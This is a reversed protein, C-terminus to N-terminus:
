SPEPDRREATDAFYSLDSEWDQIQGNGDIEMIVYDGYGSRRPSLISPVYGAITVIEEDDIDLLTYRGEDCVKYHVSAIVGEPWNKILGTALDIDIVWADGQRMPITPSENTDAVGNVDGDEWYRVGMNARLTRAKLLLKAKTAM